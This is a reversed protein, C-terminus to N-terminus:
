AHVRGAASFMAASEPAVAFRRTRRVCYQECESWWEAIEPSGNQSRMRWFGPIGELGWVLLISANAGPPGEPPTLWTHLLEMGRQKAAPLYAERFASLFADTMGDRIELEDILYITEDM